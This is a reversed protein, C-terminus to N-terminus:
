NLFPQPDVSDFGKRVEFHVYADNGSRLKAISQGRAVKDGKKVSVDTVNAYVTLLNGDHRVVVIPVGDASETIAAVTGADAAGVATGAAAKINIGENKGKSFERIISGKVPFVMKAAPATATQKGVDASPKTPKAIAASDETPLPKTSSPPTPTPSGAGPAPTGATGAPPNQQAVPILLYQGERIAFESGLGNWEALAKVPVQYLRAITFTTEGRKVKHRVPETGTQLGPAASAPPLAATQVSGAGNQPTRNIADGALTTIDLGNPNAGSATGSEAVRRPLAIIEGKRLSADVAVGNYSSLEAASIGVRTSLDNLTDGRNAVVVQYNPYSIVGRSDPEPRPATSKQAAEATSFGGNLGRLDLDFPQSCATLVLLASCAVISKRLPYRRRHKATQYQEQCPLYRSIAHEM